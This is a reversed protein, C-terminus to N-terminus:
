KYIQIERSGPFNQVKMYKGSLFEYKSGYHLFRKRRLRNAYNSEIAYKFCEIDQCISYIKRGNEVIYIPLKFDVCYYRTIDISNMYENYLMSDISNSFSSIYQRVHSQIRM